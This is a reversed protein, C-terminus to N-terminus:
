PLRAAAKIAYAYADSLEASGNLAAAQVIM